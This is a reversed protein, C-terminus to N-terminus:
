VKWSIIESSFFTWEITKLVSFNSTRDFYIGLFKEEWNEIILTKHVMIKRTCLDVVSNNFM